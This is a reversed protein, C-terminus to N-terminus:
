EELLEAAKKAVEGTLVACGGKGKANQTAIRCCTAGYEHRFWDHLQRTLRNVRRKDERVALGFAMTGGSVAGCLCGANSGGGFGAAVRVVDQPTEPSYANRMAMLVAEACHMRGTRYFGEADLGVQEALSDAPANDKKRLWFM